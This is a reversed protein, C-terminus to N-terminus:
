KIREHKKEVIKKVKLWSINELKIKNYKIKSHTYICVYIYVYMFITQTYISYIYKHCIHLYIYIYISPILQQLEKDSKSNQLSPVMPWINVDIM